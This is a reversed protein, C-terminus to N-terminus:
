FLAGIVFPLLENKSRDKGLAQAVTNLNKIAEIKIKTNADSSKMEELMTQIKANDNM